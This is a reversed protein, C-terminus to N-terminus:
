YCRSHLELVGSKCLSIVSPLALEKLRSSSMWKVMQAVQKTFSLLPLFWFKVPFPWAVASFTTKRLIGAKYLFHPRHFVLTGTVGSSLRAQWPRGQAERQLEWVWGVGSDTGLRPPFFWRPLFGWSESTLCSLGAGLEGTRQRRLGLCSSNASSSGVTQPSSFKAPEQHSFAAGLGSQVAQRWCRYGSLM